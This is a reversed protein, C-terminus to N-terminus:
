RTPLLVGEAIIKNLAQEHTIGLTAEYIKLARFVEADVYVDIRKQGDRNKM